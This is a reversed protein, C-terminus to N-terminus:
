SATDIEKFTTGSFKVFSHIELPVGFGNKASYYICIITTGNDMYLEFKRPEYTLPYKCTEKAKSSAEPVIKDFESKNLFQKVKQFDLIEYTVSVKKGEGNELKISGKEQLMIYSCSVLLFSLIFLKYKKM